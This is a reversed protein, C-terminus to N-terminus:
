FLSEVDGCVSKMAVELMLQTKPMESVVQEISSVYM